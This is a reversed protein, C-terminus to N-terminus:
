RPSPRAISSRSQKSIRSSRRSQRSRRRRHRQRRRRGQASRARSRHPGEDEATEHFARARSRARARHIEDRPGAAHRRLRAARVMGRHRRGDRRSRRRARAPHRFRHRQWPREIARAPLVRPDSEPMDTYRRTEGDLASRAQPAARHETRRPALSRDARIAGSLTRAASERRDAQPDDARHDPAGALHENGVCHTAAHDAAAESPPDMGERNRHASGAICARRRPRAGKRKGGVGLPRDADARARGACRDPAAPARYRGMRSAPRAQGRASWNADVSRARRRSLPVRAGIETGGGICHGHIAAVTRCPLRALQQFVRQGYQITDLIAGNKEYEAFERLDAGVALGGAKGSHIVVGRPPEFSLREVIEQLEDIVARGLTNVPSGARDLTLTVIGDADRESRWNSFRLGEFM